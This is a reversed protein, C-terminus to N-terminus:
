GLTQYIALIKEPPIDPQINHITSFVFGGGDALLDVRERVERRIDEIGGFPLTTQTEVGGGWFALDRGFERKIVAPDMGRANTQLPNLVDIGIEIFDPIIATIAGDCHIFVKADTRAKVFEIWRRQRPKFVERYLQPSIQLADQAGFDDNMQIAEIFPGAVALFRDLIAFDHALKSDLWYEVLERECALKMMFNEFGFLVLGLEFFSCVFMPLGAFLAKDTGHYFAEIQRKVFEEERASWPDPWVFADIDARTEAAALPAWCVDFYFSEPSRRAYLEGGRRIEITGDAAITEELAEPALCPDGNTLRWPKWRDIELFAMGSTPGLRQLQVVDAGLRDLVELSPLALQQKVDFVRVEEEIGLHPLLKQYAIASIGTIRSAGLDVPVRDTPQHNLAARVRQRSTMATM